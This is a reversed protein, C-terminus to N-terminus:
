TWKEIAKQNFSFNEHPPGYITINLAFEHCRAIITRNKGAVHSAFTFGNNGNGRTVHYVDSHFGCTFHSFHVPELNDRSLCSCHQALNLQGAQVDNKFPKINVHM